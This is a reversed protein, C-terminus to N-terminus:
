PTPREASALVRVQGGADPARDVVQIPPWMWQWVAQENPRALEIVGRTGDVRVKAWADPVRQPDLSAAALASVLTSVADYGEFAVFSPDEGLEARLRSQVIRGSSTLTTPMYRLFSVGAGQRGLSRAWGALEAQGAPTGVFLGRLRPDRRVADVIGVALQPFGTLVLLARAKCEVLVDCIAPLDTSADIEVFTVGTPEMRQRLVQIGSAWYRGWSKAVAVVNLEAELLYDAYASWAISQAPAIRAVWDTPKDTLADLVASACVFPMQRVAAQSALDRAVLSHYEGAVGVVDVRSFESLISAASVQGGATDRVHARLPRGLIGGADNTVDVALEMGALLHRGADAWGPASLPAVLGINVPAVAEEHSMLEEASRSRM